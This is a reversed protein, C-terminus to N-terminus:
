NSGEIDIDKRAFADALAQGTKGFGIIAYSMIIRWDTNFFRRRKLSRTQHDQSQSALWPVM